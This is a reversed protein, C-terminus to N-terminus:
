MLRCILAIYEEVYIFLLFNQSSSIAEKGQYSAPWMSFSADLLLNDAKHVLQRKGEPLNRTSMETLPQTSGLAMSCSFPNPSNFIGIVEDPFQVHSRGAQLM